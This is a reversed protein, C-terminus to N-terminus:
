QWGNEMNKLKELEKKEHLNTNFLRYLENGKSIRNDFPIVIDYSELFTNIITPAVYWWIPFRLYITDYEDMNELKEAIAPRFLEDSMELLEM